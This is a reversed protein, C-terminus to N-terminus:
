DDLDHDLIGESSEESEQKQPEQQKEDSATACAM